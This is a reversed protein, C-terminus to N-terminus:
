KVLIYYVNVFDNGMEIFSKSMYYWLDDGYIYSDFNIM